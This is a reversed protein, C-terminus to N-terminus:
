MPMIQECLQQKREDLNAFFSFHVDLLSVITVTPATQRVKKTKENRINREREEEELTRKEERKRGYRFSLVWMDDFERM